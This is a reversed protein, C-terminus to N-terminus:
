EVVVSGTMGREELGRLRLTYTGTRIPVFFVEVAGEGDFDLEELTATKVEIRGVQVQQIWANRWLEPAVLNYERKGSSAIRWRYYRGTEIRWEKQSMWFDSEDNGLVLPELRQARTALDGRALAPRTALLGLTATGLTFIARRSPM